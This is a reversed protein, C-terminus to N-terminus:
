NLLGDEKLPNVEGRELAEAYQTDTLPVPKEITQGAEAKGALKKAAMLIEQRRVLEETEQNLKELREIREDAQEIPSAEQPKDGENVDEVTGQEEQKEENNDEM